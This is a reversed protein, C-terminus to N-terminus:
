LDRSAPEDVQAMNELNGVPPTTKLKLEPAPASKPRERSRHVEHLKLKGEWRLKLKEIVFPVRVATVTPFVELQISHCSGTQTNFFYTMVPEAANQRNMDPTATFNLRKGDKDHFSISRLHHQEVAPVQVRYSEHLSIPDKQLTVMVFLGPVGDIALRKGSHASLPEITVLRPEGTAYVVEMDGRIELHSAQSIEPVPLSVFPQRNLETKIETQRRLKRMEIGALSYPKRWNHWSQLKSAEPPTLAQDNDMM